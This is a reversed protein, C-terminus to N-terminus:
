SDNWMSPTWYLRVIHPRALHTLPAAHALRRATSLEVRRRTVCQQLDLAYHGDPNKPDFRSARGRAYSGGSQVNSLGVQERVGSM